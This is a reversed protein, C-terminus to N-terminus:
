YRGAHRQLEALLLEYVKLRAPLIEGEAAAARVACGPEKLHRCNHFRCQGSHARFEPFAAQLAELGLHALAFEQMGPSDILAGGQPLAYLRTHTTTHRGSNLAQSIANTRAQAAPVLANILTSKGVGSAGVLISTKDTLWPLLPAVDRQASVGLVPYGLRAYAELYEILAASAPLDAKNAVILAPIKAAEAAILCRNLLEEKFAPEAAVVILAQDLNAALLKTKFADARYLLNRRPQVREIVGARPGTVTFEVWDGCAIGGKRGRSICDFQEPGAQVTFHKGYVAVVQGTNM